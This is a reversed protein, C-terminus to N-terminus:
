PRLAFDVFYHLVENLKRRWRRFFIARRCDLQLFWQSDNTPEYPLLPTRSDWVPEVKTYTLLRDFNEAWDWDDEERWCKFTNSGSCWRTKHTECVFWHDRRLNIFGDDKGCYPCCGFPLLSHGAKSEGKMENREDM